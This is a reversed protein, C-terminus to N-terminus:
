FETLLFFLLLLCIGLMFVMWAGHMYGISHQIDEKTLPRLPQGLTARQSAIGAYTSRGGLQVRLLGAMMAEPWGANPSQHKPADQWTVRLAFIMHKLKTEQLSQQDMPIVWAALWMTVATVRAPLWNLGDDLRASAWGFHEYRENRYGVMSDLTNGARYALALPAGGILAWFLPATIGDVTNEAVTEVTGRVVEAEDLDQTDRGVIQGLKTRAELLDGCHLPRAVDFAAERLSKITITTSILYVEVVIGLLWHVSYAFWVMTLALFLVTGVVILVLFMGKTKRWYHQNKLRSARGESSTARNDRRWERNWKKEFFSIIAGMARVPHPLWRPDGLCVDLLIAGILILLGAFLPSILNLSLVDLILWLMM